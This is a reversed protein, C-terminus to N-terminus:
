VHFRNMKTNWKMERSNSSVQCISKGTGGINLIALDLNDVAVVELLGDNMDPPQFGRYIAHLFFFVVIFIDM